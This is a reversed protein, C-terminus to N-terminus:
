KCAIGLTLFVLLDVRPSAPRTEKAVSGVIVEVVGVVVDFVDIPVLILIRVARGGGGLAALTTTTATTTRGGWAHTTTSRASIAIISRRIVRRQVATHAAGAFRRRGGCRAIHLRRFRRPSRGVARQRRRFRGTRLRRGVRRRVAPGPHIMVVVVIAIITAARRGASTMARGRRRRRRRSGRLRITSGGAATAGDASTISSEDM